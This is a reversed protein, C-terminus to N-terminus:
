GAYWHDVIALFHAPDKASLRARTHPSNVLRLVGDKTCASLLQRHVAALLVLQIVIMDPLAPVVDPVTCYATSALAPLAARLLVIVIALWVKV